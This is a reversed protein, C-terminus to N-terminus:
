AENAWTKLEAVQMETKRYQHWRLRQIEQAMEPIDINITVTLSLPSKAGAINTGMPLWQGPQEALSLLNTRVIEELVEREEEPLAAWDGSEDQAGDDEDTAWSASIQAVPPPSDPPTTPVPM